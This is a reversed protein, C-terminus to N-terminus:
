GFLSAPTAPVEEVVEPTPTPTPEVYGHPVTEVEPAPPVVAAAELVPAGVAKAAADEIIIDASIGNEKRGSTFSVEVTKNALNIGQSAIYATLAAVIEQQKINIQM